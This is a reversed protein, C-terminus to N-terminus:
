STCSTKETRLSALFRRDRCYQWIWLGALLVNMPVLIFAFFWDLHQILALIGVAYRRVNDGMVNWGRVPRYFTARYRARDEERVEGDVSRRALVAEVDPHLGAVRRQVSDYQRALAGLIGGVMGSTRPAPATGAHAPIFGRIACRTYSDRHYDYMQAQIAACAGAAAAVGVTWSSAGAAMSSLAIALFMAAHTIYGAVGDLIRGLDSSSNTMRALQGDASDIVGHVVLLGFGALALHPWYLLAGGLAGIAAAALSVTNPTVRILRALRAILYGLRRFFYIDVLEEIEYAKYALGASGAV